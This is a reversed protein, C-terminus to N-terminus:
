TLFFGKRHELTESSCGCPNLVCYVCNVCAADVSTETRHRSEHEVGEIGDYVWIQSEPFEADCKPWRM